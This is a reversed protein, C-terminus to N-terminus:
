PTQLLKRDGFYVPKTDGSNGSFIAPATAESASSRAATAPSATQGGTAPAVPGTAASAKHNQALWQLSAEAEMQEKEAHAVKNHMLKNLESVHIEMNTRLEGIMHDKRSLKQLFFVEACLTCRNKDLRVDRSVDSRECDTCEWKKAKERIDQFETRVKGLQRLMNNEEESSDAAEQRERKGSAACAEAKAAAM